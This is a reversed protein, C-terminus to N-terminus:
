KDPFKGGVYPDNIRKDEATGGLDREAEESHEQIFTDEEM